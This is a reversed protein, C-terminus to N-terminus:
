VVEGPATTFVVSLGGGPRTRDRWAPWGWGSGGPSRGCCSPAWSSAWSARVEVFNPAESPLHIKVTGESISLAEAIGRNRLGFGIM